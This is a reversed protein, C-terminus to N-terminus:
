ELMAKMQLFFLRRRARVKPDAPVAIFAAYEPGCEHEECKIGRWEKSVWPISPTFELGCKPCKIPKLNIKHMKAFAEADMVPQLSSKTKNKKGKGKLLTLM